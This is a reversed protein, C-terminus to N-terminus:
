DVFVFENLNFVVRCANALGFQRAHAALAEREVPAPPRSLALLFARDIKAPLDGPDDELRRAFHGAMTVMLRDNLLALAQLATTSENRKDVSMSPDACDLATLFPQPQSRVIFRYVSRRYAKPDEPDFLKYEYHPSHEPREVVFDRFGPGGMSRDLRGAVLLVSDRISEAELRRRNMRWLSVNDGDLRAKVEDGESSQRYVASTVILRHLSKLSQGGDRFEAALWDLLEPHSPTRGMRGFDNPSDVLGRGFHYQWARNVISRWTLPNRPDALWRALAARREEEPADPPLDFRSPVGAIIAVTGPGVVQKPNRIEGRGLVRIERPKGGSAGTGRFSGSGHHITGAYVKSQPPLASLQRDVEGLSRTAADLATRAPDDLSDRIMAERRAKLGPLDQSDGQPYEADVLNALRWRPPAEITDLASVKGGKAVNVGAPDLVEVEALAFNYDDQRPALRTATVRVYRASRIKADFAVPELRPNKFDEGSRDAISSVGSGFLPDDSAEVKFRAPFGFGPGIKNFDDDCAHLVVRGIAVGRGLDIQVWRTAEPTTSLSSHYGYAPNRAPRARRAAEVEAIRRDLAVLPEGARGKGVALLREVEGALGSRRAMLEGRRAAVSPDADYVRDARDLAAFVAQLSYYDEQSVPDFKHDHCRACQVTLSAFTNLANSVMDDRDLLRALQGDLKTEPVEAHGIFDWPGASIFGLAEIGDRTGPFLVDGAVQELLFRGYPKDENFARIVYDRYPWANLRPQDKDYGHTDGYRAVDLWHRGWREGHHPSALLRDVLREYADPAQDALFADIEEPSPPLGILDFTVRRILTRRDAEPSPELGKARLGALIFSDIPTRAWGPGVDPVPPRVIPRLSWWDTPEAKLVVGDPWHAGEAIWTRIAEVQGANLRDGSKPMTPKDGSIVEFLRSEEPRGPVVVSGDGWGEIVGSPESLDLDGKPAKGQHCRLCHGKLIPAVQERFHVADAEGAQSASAWALCAIAIWSAFRM